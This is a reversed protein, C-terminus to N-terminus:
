SKGGRLDVLGSKFKGGVEDKSVIPRGREVREFSKCSSYLLVYAGYEMCVLDREFDAAHVCVICHPPRIGGGEFRKIFDPPPM